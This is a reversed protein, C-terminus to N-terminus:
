VTCKRRVDRRSPKPWVRLLPFTHICVWGSCLLRKRRRRLWRWSRSDLGRGDADGVRYRFCSNIWWNNGICRSLRYGGPLSQGKCTSTFSFYCFSPPPPPPTAILTALAPTSTPPTSLFCGAYIPNPSGSPRRPLKKMLAVQVSFRRNKKSYTTTPLATRTCSKSLM